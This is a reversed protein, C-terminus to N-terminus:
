RLEDEFEAAALVGRVARLRNVLVFAETPSDGWSFGGTVYVNAGRLAMCTFERGSLAQELETLCRHLDQHLASLGDRTDPDPLDLFEDREEIDSSIVVDVARHAAAFDPHLDEDIALCAILMEAGM